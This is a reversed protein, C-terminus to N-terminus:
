KKQNLKQTNKSKLALAIYEVEIQDISKGTLEEIKQIAKQGLEKGQYNPSLEYVYSKVFPIIKNEVWLYCFLFRAASYGYDERMEDSLLFKKLPTLQKKHIVDQLEPLRWNTYGEIFKGNQTSGMEYFSAFGENFWQQVDSDTNLDIFSHVMEHWLTGPGSNYYTYLTRETNTYYDPSEPYYVGYTTYGMQKIFQSKNKFFIIRLTFRPEYIFYRSYTDNYFIKLKEEIVDMEKETCMYAINYYKTYRVKFELKYLSKLDAKFDSTEKKKIQEYETASISQNLYFTKNKEVRIESLLNKRNKLSDKRKSEGGLSATTVILAVVLLFIEKRM